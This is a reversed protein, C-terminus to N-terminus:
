NKKEEVPGVGLFTKIEIEGSPEIVLDIAGCRSTRYVPYSEAVQDFVRQKHTEKVYNSAVIFRPQVARIFEGTTTEASGHHPAVLVDARLEDPHLLLAREPPEQIDAPFLVTRGAYKLKLVLGCNNSNMDCDVPPWLVDIGAGNGLDVHDGRHIITPSRGAARLVRLMSEAPYNGVAHRAFHPSTYVTPEDFAQFLETTSSIHDFDGHSLLIRDVHSCDEFRLWPIVLVQGVDSITTSGDDIFDAHNHSTRIIACQGAGVSLFTIRLPESAAHQPAAATAVNPVLLLLVCAAAVAFGKMWVGLRWRVPVFVLLIAGYYVVLLWVPPPAVMVSAGPFRDLMEILHRMVEVPGTAMLAWIHGGSPWALTLLIKGVGAVLAVITLPLLVVGAAVAWSNIQGFHYAILPMAMGWAVCSAVMVSVLAKGIWRLVHWAPGHEKVTVPDDGRWWDWFREEVVRSFLVLGLVAVFSVRFGGNELDAPHILLVVGVSIAFMQLSDVARGGLIGLTAGTCLIISRWGPWSPEAVCGYLLVVGLAAWKAERPSRRLLRFTLLVMAGIIAVHLGSIALYHITGTQVFKQDLDRLQPDPDGLVFARVLALDFSQNEDFGLALLHRAKERLWVIPGAWWQSVIEVGDAHGVRLTALIRQERCWSAYDFEGPNMAGGPRALMGTARVIEGAKVQVNPQEITVAIKGSAGKWGAGTQVARVQGYFTQKPPLARMEGPPPMVLRPEDTVALVVEVLREDANTYAWISNGAFQFREIQGACVGVLFAVAAILPLRLQRLFIACGLLVAAVGLWAWIWVPLLDGLGIGLALLLVLPVAPRRKLFEILSHIPQWGRGM